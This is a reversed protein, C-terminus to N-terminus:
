QLVFDTYCIEQIYESQLLTINLKCDLPYVAHFYFPLVEFTCVNVYGM